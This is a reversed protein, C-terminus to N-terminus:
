GALLAGQSSSLLKEAAVCRELAAAVEQQQKGQSGSGGGQQQQAQQQKALLWPGVSSRLFVGLSKCLQGMGTQGALKSWAAQSDAPSKFGALLQQLTLRWFFLQQSPWRPSADFDVQKCFV